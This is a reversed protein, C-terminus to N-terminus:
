HTTCVSCVDFSKFVLEAVKTNSLGIMAKQSIGQKDKTGGCLNWQTPTVIEYEKILGNKIEVKHILSGRAAEVASQGSSNLNTVDVSPKIYSAEQLDIMSILEKSHNLLGAIECVRALIRSFISDGYKRHSDKILLTKNVMARSLPGVEYYKDRYNVSKSFTDKGLTEKVYSFGINKTLRTKISKGKKFYSNEGFVIFRDFSKGCGILNEKKIQKLIDIIDGDKKLLDEVHECM